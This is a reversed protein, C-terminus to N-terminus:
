IFFGFRFKRKPNKQKPLQIGEGGIECPRFVACSIGVTIDFFVFPATFFPLSFFSLRHKGFPIVYAEKQPIIYSSM